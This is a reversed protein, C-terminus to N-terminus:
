VINEHESQVTYYQDMNGNFTNFTHPPPTPKPCILKIALKNSREVEEM